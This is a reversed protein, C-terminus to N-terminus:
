LIVIEFLRRLFIEEGNEDIFQIWLGYEDLRKLGKEEITLKGNEYTTWVTYSNTFNKPFDTISIGYPEPISFIYYFLGIAMICIMLILTIIFAVTRGLLKYKRKSKM